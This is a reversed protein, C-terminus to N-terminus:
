QAENRTGVAENNITGPILTEREAEGSKLSAVSVNHVDLTRGVAREYDARAKLLDVLARVENGQAATLDRQTQIVQFVTSAGLKYKKQESDFTQEQLIRAKEAADYRARNQELAIYTNRVDLLAANKLQQVQTELQRQALLARQSDAQAQRNRLPITVSLQVAYDPYANQFIQNQAAGFGSYALPGGLPMYNGSLGFSGYQAGLVAVPLLANRAARRTIDANKLTFEQQRLDPRNAFAEKLAEEFSAAEFPGPKQPAEAPIIEANILRADLPNKSIVNLLIQQQQLLATQAVIMNQRNTAVESEARVVDIPAMTGIEVQKKNDSYLKEAVEVARTQVKVNERAYVLEWYANIVSTITTIASQQFQLDAIKRNNKAIRINRMNPLKGFGNLLQQQLSVYLASQVAPNFLNLPSDSSSRTNNWSAAIGTGTWFGQSIQTNYQATHTGLSAASAGGTGTGSTLPNNVPTHRTDYSLTSTITPDFNLPPIAGLTTAIGTGTLGRGTGGGLTRLIDTDAIWPNYRQIVIDLNNELALEIVDQLTIQLKGDQVMQEIRKSNALDPAELKVPRYPAILNPFSRPGRSFNHKSLQLSLPTTRVPEAPAAQAPTPTAAQAPAAPPPNQPEQAAQAPPQSAAPDQGTGQAGAPLIGGLGMAGMLGAALLGRGFSM